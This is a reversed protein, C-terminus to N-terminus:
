EAEAETLAALLHAFDEPLQAESKHVPSRKEQGSPAHRDLLPVESLSM